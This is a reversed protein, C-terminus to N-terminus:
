ASYGWVCLSLVNVFMTQQFWKAWYRYAKMFPFTIKALVIAPTVRNRGGM